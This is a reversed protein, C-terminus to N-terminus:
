LAQIAIKHPVGGQRGGRGGVFNLFAKIGEIKSSALAVTGWGGASIGVVIAEDQRIGPLTRLHAVAASIDSATANGASVFDPRDCPGYQELWRGGTEGYGRRLPLAVTFGKSVLFHPLPSTCAMPKMDPRKGADLASVHNVVALRSPGDTTPRCLRTLMGKKTGPRPIFLTEQHPIWNLKAVPAILQSLEIRTMTARTENTDRRWSADAINKTALKYTATFSRTISLTDGTIEAQHRWWGKKVSAEPNDGVAYIVSASGDSQVDEVILIHRLADGWSGIWAGLFLKYKEPLDPRPEATRSIEPIPVGDILLEASSGARPFVPLVLLALLCKTCFNM